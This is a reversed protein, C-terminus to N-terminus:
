AQNRRCKGHLRYNQRVQVYRRPDTQLKGLLCLAQVEEYEVPWNIGEDVSLIAENVIRFNTRHRRAKQKEAIYKRGQIFEHKPIDRSYNRYPSSQTHMRISLGCKYSAHPWMEYFGARSIINLNNSCGHVRFVGM